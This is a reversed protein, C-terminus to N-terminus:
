LSHANTSTSTSRKSNSTMTAGSNPTADEVSNAAELLYYRLYRNGSKIMRSHEAEFEGSQNKHTRLAQYRYDDM